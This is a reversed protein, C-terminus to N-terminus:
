GRLGQIGQGAAGSHNDVFHPSFFLHDKPVGYHRLYAFNRQGVYLHADFCPLLIRYLIEKTIIKLPNRQKGLHSDGRSLVQIGAKKAAWFAQWFVKKHWGILLVHTFGGERLIAGIEPCDCGGFWELGPRQSVNKLFRHPYGELLPIDWEFEVGFGAEAQGKATQKHAYFVEFSFDAM